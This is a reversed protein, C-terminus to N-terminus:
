HQLTSEIRALRERMEAQKDKVSDVDNRIDIQRELRDFGKRMETRMESFGETLTRGVADLRVKMERLEPALFDQLLKRIDEVTSV